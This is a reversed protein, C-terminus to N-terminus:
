ACPSVRHEPENDVTTWTRDAGDVGQDSPPLDATWSVANPEQGSVEVGYVADVDQHVACRHIMRLTAERESPTQAPRSAGHLSSGETM